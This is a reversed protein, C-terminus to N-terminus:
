IGNCIFKKLLNGIIITTLHINKVNLNNNSMYENIDYIKKSKPSIHTYKILFFLFPCQSLFFYFLFLVLFICIQNIYESFIIILMIIFKSKLIM